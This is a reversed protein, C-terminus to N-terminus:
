HYVAARCTELAGSKAIKEGNRTSNRTEFIGKFIDAVQANVLFVAPAAPQLWWPRLMKRRLILANVCRAGIYVSGYYM